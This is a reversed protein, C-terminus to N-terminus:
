RNGKILQGFLMGSLFIHTQCFQPFHNFCNIWIFILKPHNIKFESLLIYILPKKKIKTIGSNNVIIAIGTREISVQLPKPTPPSPHRTSNINEVIIAQTTKINIPM